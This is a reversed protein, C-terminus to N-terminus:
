ENEDLDCEKLINDVIGDVDETRMRDGTVRNVLEELDTRDIM